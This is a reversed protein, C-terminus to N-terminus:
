YANKQFWVVYATMVLIYLDRMLSWHEIYWVDHEVRAKMKEPTETEGRLGNIQAWGTIGPKVRHRSFYGRILRAHKENLPVPHPRPGVLSMSGQLVNFLQPLEDLSTRRLFRGVRTVRPDDRQAQAASVDPIGNDYMTRFKFVSFAVNNFGYRPQRFMVPGKSDLKIALAILCMLPSFAVLLLTALFKDELHKVVTRWGALPKVAIRLMTLGGFSSYNGNPYTFAALDSGLHVHVPLDELRSVVEQIRDEACWPLAVIIDDTRNKRAYDLLDGVTGLVPLDPIESIREVRDDFVGIIVNWPEASETLRAILRKTQEGSGVIILNRTLRGSRAWSRLLFYCNARAACIFMSSLLLWSFTWVRSFQSSIKLAFSLTVLLLFVIACTKLIVRFKETFRGIIELKYVGAVWFAGITMFTAISIASLYLQTTGAEWGVYILFIVYGTSAVCLADVIGILGSVISPSLPGSLANPRPAAYEVRGAYASMNM